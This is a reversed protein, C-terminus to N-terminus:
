VGCYIITKFHGLINMYKFVQDRGATATIFPKLLMLLHPRELFFQTVTDSHVDFNKDELRM